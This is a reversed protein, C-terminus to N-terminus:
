VYQGGTAASGASNGPLYSAGAGQTDIVANSALYYRPGTASGTFTCSGILINGLSAVNAFGGAFAPTGTLTLTRGYVGVLGGRGAGIHITASGTISYNGVASARAGNEAYVHGSACAGFVLNGYGVSNGSGSVHIAYGASTQVKLDKVSWQLGGTGNLFGDGATNILVNAPTAANGQITVTGSGVVSKLTNLGTYTGDAVQITVAYTSLDLTGSVTDIAQQITLFAGGATDALGTNSDSGDTRVYYTRAATLRERPWAAMMAPITLFVNKTGAAFNVAADANSSSLIITRTLENAASYTGIGVEWDGTLAGGADVAEAAYPVLSGIVISPAASFRLYGTVAVLVFPATGTTTSTEKVRDAVVFPM